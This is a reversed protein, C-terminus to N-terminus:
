TRGVSSSLVHEVVLRNSSGSLWSRIAAENATVTEEVARDAAATDFFTSAGSLRPEAALRGALEADTKGVHRALLHGGAAEHDVLVPKPIGPMPQEPRHTTR